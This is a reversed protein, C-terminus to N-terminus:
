CYNNKVVKRIFDRWEIIVYSSNFLKEQNFNYKKQKSYYIAKSIYDSINYSILSTENLKM